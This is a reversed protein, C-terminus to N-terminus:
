LRWLTERTSIPTMLVLYIAFRKRVVKHVLRTKIWKNIWENMKMSTFCNPSIFRLGEIEVQILKSWRTKLERMLSGADNVPLVGTSLNENISLCGNQDRDQSRIDLTGVRRQCASIASQSCIVSMDECKWQSCTHHRCGHVHLKMKSKMQGFWQWLTIRFGIKNLM